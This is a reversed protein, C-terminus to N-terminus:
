MGDSNPSGPAATVAPVLAREIIRAQMARSNEVQRRALGARRRAPQAREGAIGV